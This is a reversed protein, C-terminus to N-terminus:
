TIDLKYGFGVEALQALKKILSVRVDQPLREMLRLADVSSRFVSDLDQNLSSVGVNHVALLLEFEAETLTLQAVRPLETDPM